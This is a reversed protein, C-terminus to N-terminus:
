EMCLTKESNEQPTVAIRRGLAAQGYLFCGPGGQCCTNGSLRRSDANVSSSVAYPGLHFAGSRSRSTLLQLLKCCSDSRQMRPECSVASSWSVSKTCNHNLPLGSLLV